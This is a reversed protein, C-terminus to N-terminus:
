EDDSNYEEDGDSDEVDDVYVENTFGTTKENMVTMSNRAKKRTNTNTTAIRKTTMAANVKSQNWKAKKMEKSVNKKM